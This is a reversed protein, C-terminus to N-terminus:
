MNTRRKARQLAQAQEIMAPTLDIGTVHRAVQAFACALAGPGCAVDLVTDSPGVESATLILEPSQDPMQSFPVAQKSFQDLILRQHKEERETVTRSRAGTDHAAM